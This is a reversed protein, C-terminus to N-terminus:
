KQVAIKQYEAAVRKMFDGVGPRHDSAIHDGFDTFACDEWDIVANIKGTEVDVLFNDFIDGHYWGMGPKPHVDPQPKMDRIEMPDARGIVDIFTAIERALKDSFRARVDAPLARMGRGPIMDYKRILIGRYEILEVPPIYLPSIPSLADVIRKERMAMARYNKHRLPFKYIYKNNASILLSKAHYGIFFHINGLPMGMDRRMFRLYTLIPSNMMVRLKKRKTQDWVFACVINTFFRRVPRLVSM